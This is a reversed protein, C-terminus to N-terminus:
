SLNSLQKLVDSALLLGLIFDCQSIALLLSSAQSSTKSNCINTTKIEELSVFIPDLLDIFTDLSKSRETWRTECLKSLKHSSSNESVNSTLVHERQVSEKFFNIVEKVTAITDRIFPNECSDVVVLNLVHAVCHTYVALPQIERIRAQVGKFCGSMNSAGDYGQGRLKDTGLNWSQLKEVIVQSLNHQRIM